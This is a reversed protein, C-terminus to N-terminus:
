DAVGYQKLVERVAESGQAKEPRQAGAKLLEEVVAAYNGTKCHWGHESGHIAWGLPKANFDPDAQELPPHHALIVRTM